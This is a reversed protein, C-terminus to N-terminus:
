FGPHPCLQLKKQGTKATFRGSEHSRLFAGSRAFESFGSDM